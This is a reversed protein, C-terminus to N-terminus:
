NKTEGTTFFNETLQKLAPEAQSLTVGPDYLVAQLYFNVPFRQGPAVNPIDKPTPEWVHSASLNASIRGKAGASETFNWFVRVAKDEDFGNVTDRKKTKFDATIPVEIFPLKSTEARKKFDALLRGCAEGTWPFGTAPSCTFVIGTVLDFPRQGPAPNMQANVGSATLTLVAAFLVAIKTM